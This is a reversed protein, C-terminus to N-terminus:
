ATQGLLLEFTDPPDRLASLCGPFAATIRKLTAKSDHQVSTTDLQLM